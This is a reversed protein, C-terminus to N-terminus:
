RNSSETIEFDLLAPAVKWASLVYEVQELLRPDHLNRTSLNVAVPMEQVGRWLSLQRAALEIVLSTLPRILGTQEAIPVFQGPFDHM